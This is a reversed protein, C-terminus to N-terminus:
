PHFFLAKFREVDRDYAAKLLFKGRLWLRMMHPYRHHKTIFRRQSVFHWVYRQVPISTSSTGADHLVRAEIACALMYGAKRLRMNLDADEWYMFFAEDFIGVDQLAAADLLLSAATCWAYPRDLDAPDDVMGCSLLGSRMWSGYHPACQGTPDILLSGVAGLPQTFADATRVLAALCDTDPSADNNLLWIRKYGGALAQVIARNCGGGFGLNRDNFILTVKDAHRRLADALIQPSADGSGNDVVFIHAPLLSQALVLDVAQLTMQAARWNVLVVAVDCISPQIEDEKM